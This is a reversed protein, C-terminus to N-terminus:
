LILSNFFSLPKEKPEKPSLQKIRKKFEFESLQEGNIWWQKSGDAFEIAPGNLRHRQGNVWWSKTGDLWEMAPGDLRHLLGNVRWSKSGNELIELTPQEKQNQM